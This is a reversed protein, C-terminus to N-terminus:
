FHSVYTETLTVNDGSYSNKTIFYTLSIEAPLNLYVFKQIVAVKAWKWM